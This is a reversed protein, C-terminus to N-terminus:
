SELWNGLSEAVDVSSIFEQEIRGKNCNILHLYLSKESTTLQDPPTPRAIFTETVAHNEAYKEFDKHSMLLATLSPIILRASALLTLGWTDM